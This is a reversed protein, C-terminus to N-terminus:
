DCRSLEPVWGQWAKDCAGPPLGLRTAWAPRQLPWVLAITRPGTERVVVCQGAARDRCAFRMGPPLLQEADRGGSLQVALAARATRRQAQGAAREAAAAQQRLSAVQGARTGIREAAWRPLDQARDAHADGIRLGSLLCLLVLVAAAAGRAWSWVGRRV